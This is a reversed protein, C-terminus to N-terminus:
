LISDSEDIKEFDFVNARQKSFEADTKTFWNESNTDQSVEVLGVSKMKEALENPIRNSWVYVANQGYLERLKPLIEMCEKVVAAKVDKSNSDM